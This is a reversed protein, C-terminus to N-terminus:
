RVPGETEKYKWADLALKKGGKSPQVHANYHMSENAHVLISSGLGMVVFSVYSYSYMMGFGLTGFVCASIGLLLFDKRRSQLRHNARLFRFIFFLLIVVTPIGLRFAQELYHNHFSVTSLRKEGPRIKIYVNRDYAHGNGWLWVKWNFKQEIQAEWRAVRGGGTSEDFKERSALASASKNLIRSFKTFTEPLFIAAVLMTFPITLVLVIVRLNIRAYLHVFLLGMASAIWVSRHRLLVVVALLFITAWLYRSQSSEYYRTLALLGAFALFLAGASPVVREGSKLVLALVFVSSVCAVVLILTVMRILLPRDYYFSFFYLFAPIFIIFDRSGNISRMVPDGQFIVCLPISAAIFILFILFTKVINNQHIMESYFRYRIWSVYSFYAIMIDLVTIRVGSITTSNYAPINLLEVWVIAALWFALGVLTNSRIRKHFSLLALLFLALIGTSM